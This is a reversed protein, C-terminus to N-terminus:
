TRNKKDVWIVKEDKLEDRKFFNSCKGDGAGTSGGTSCIHKGNTDYVRNFQDCCKAELFYVFEDRHKYRIIRDPLNDPAGAELESILERLWKPISDGESQDGKSDQKSDAKTAAAQFSFEPLLSTHAYLGTALLLLLTHWNM